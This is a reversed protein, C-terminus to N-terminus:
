LVFGVSVDIMGSQEGGAVARDPAPLPANGRPDYDVMSELESGNYLGGLMFLGVGLEVVAHRGIRTGAAARLTVLGGTEGETDSRDLWRLTGGVALYPTFARNRLPLELNLPYVGAGIARVQDSIGFLGEIRFRVHKGGVDLGPAFTVLTTHLGLAGRDIPATAMASGPAFGHARNYAMAAANYAAVAEGVHEGLFPMSDSPELSLPEIGLRFVGRADAHAAGHATVIAATVALSSLFRIPL